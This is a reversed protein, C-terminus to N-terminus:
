RAVGNVTGSLGALTADNPVPAYLQLPTNGPLTYTGGSWTLTGILDAPVGTRAPFTIQGVVTPTGAIVAKLILTALATAGVTASISYSDAFYTPHTWQGTGLLEGSQMQGGAFFGFGAKNGGTQQGASTGVGISTLANLDLLQVPGPRKGNSVRGLLYGGPM